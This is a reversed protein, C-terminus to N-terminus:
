NEVPNIVRLKINEVLKWIRTYKFYRNYLKKSIERISLM